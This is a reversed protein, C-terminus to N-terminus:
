QEVITGFDKWVLSNQYLEQTGHPVILTSSSLPVNKFVNLSIKQPTNSANKVLTLKSCDLFANNGISDLEAPLEISELSSCDYFAGYDLLKLSNPLDVNQLSTCHAFANNEIVHITSPFEMKSLKSCGIFAEPGIREIGQPISIEELEKCLYFTGYELTRINNSLVVDKLNSCNRFASPGIFSVSNPIVLSLLSTCGSFASVDIYKVSEPITLGSLSKCNEFAYSGIYAVSNPISIRKLETYALSAVGISDLGDPLEIETLSPCKYFNYGFELSGYLENHNSGFRKLTKPLMIKSLSDCHVFRLEFFSVPENVIVEKLSKCYGFDSGNWYMDQEDCSINSNIILETINTGNFAWNGIHNLSKPLSLRGSVGSSAFAHSEISKINEPIEISTVSSCDYFSYKPIRNMTPPIVMGTLQKCGSFAYEGFDEISNSVFEFKADRCGNFASIGIHSVSPPIIVKSMITCGLLMSDPIEKIGDPIVFGEPVIFDPCLLPCDMFARKEIIKLSKPLNISLLNSCGEFASQEISEIGEPLIIYNLSCCNRFSSAAICNFKAFYDKSSYGDASREKFYANGGEVFVCQSLDLSDLTGTTEDGYINVGSMERICRLDTGNIPGELILAKLRNKLYHSEIYEALGGATRQTYQLSQNEENYVVAHSTDDEGEIYILEKACSGFTVILIACLMIIKSNRM